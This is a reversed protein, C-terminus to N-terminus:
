KQYRCFNRGSFVWWISNFVINAKKSILAVEALLRLLHGIACTHWPGDVNDFADEFSDWPLIFLACLSDLPQKAPFCGGAAAPNFLEPRGAHPSFLTFLSGPLFAGPSSNPTWLSHCLLSPLFLYPFLLCLYELFLPKLLDPLPSIYPSLFSPFSFPSSTLYCLKFSGTVNVCMFFFIVEVFISDSEFILPLPAGLM